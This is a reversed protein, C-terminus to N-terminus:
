NLIYGDVICRDTEFQIKFMINSLEFMVLLMIQFIVDQMIGVVLNAVYTVVRSSKVNVIIYLDITLFDSSIVCVLILFLYITFLTPIVTCVFM